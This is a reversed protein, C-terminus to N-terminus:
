CGIIYGGGGGRIGGGNRGLRGEEGGRVAERVRGVGCM